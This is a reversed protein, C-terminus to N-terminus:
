GNAVRSEVPLRITFVTGVGLQSEFKLTGGHKEVVISRALALGQGTGRGVEKTTFFPEFIRDRISEAIGCGTDGIEVRVWGDEGRTVVSIKGKQGTSKVIDQVAHAANVLLNLFVQNLDGPYCLVPPLEGFDTEVEAVYKLENRAVILTTQLGVNIDTPVKEGRDPHSFEKMARVITAVRATGDLAQTLAKPVEELLYDVDCAQYAEHAEQWLGEPIPGLEAAREVERYKALLTAIGSFEDRFFRVNDGVFQMPTNIEHAIGSALSGVAQLKQSHRLEVELRNRESVNVAVTLVAIRGAFECTDSSIEVEFIRGDRARHKFPTSMLSGRHKKLLDLLRPVEEPARLDTIKMRLLEERSYGYCKTAAENVELFQLSGRDFVYVPQPIVNFLVRFSAESKRTEEVLRALERAQKEQESRARAMEVTYQRLKEEYRKRVTIDQKIAVFNVIEGMGSRVPTITMEEHYLSGDKRRNVIEGKWINGALVTSWLKEYFRKDHMGSRLIRATKGIAESASYGTCRTFAPNVWVITGQRDTVVVGNPIALLASGLLEPCDAFPMPYAPEPSSVPLSVMRVSECLTGRMEIESPWAKKDREMGNEIESALSRV